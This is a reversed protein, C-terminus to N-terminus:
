FINTECNLERIEIENSLIKLLIKHVIKVRNSPSDHNTAITNCVSVTASYLRFHM